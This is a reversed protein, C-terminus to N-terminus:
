WPQSQIHLKNKEYLMVKSIQLHSHAFLFHQWIVSFVPINYKLSNKLYQNISCYEMEEETGVPKYM